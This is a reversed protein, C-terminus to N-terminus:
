TEALSERSTAARPCFVDLAAGFLHGESMSAVLATEDVLGGRGTNVLVADPKMLPLTREGILHRSEETCPLHLSVIDAQLLLDDLDCLRIGEHQAYAEDPFPDHAIVNLGLGHALKAVHRGIRGLGVIGLTKGALRPGGRRTWEGGRVERDRGLVDRYVALVMAITHEAVSADVAGPTITVVVDNRTAAPVDVSDYGVGTRAIVRLDARDLVEANYRETSAIAADVGKLIKLLTQQDSAYKRDPPFVIEIGAARLEAFYPADANRFQTPTVLVRPM